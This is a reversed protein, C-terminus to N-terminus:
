SCPELPQVGLMGSDQLFFPGSGNELRQAGNFQGFPEAPPHRNAGGRFRANQWKVAPLSYQSSAKARKAAARV